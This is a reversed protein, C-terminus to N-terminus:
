AHEPAHHVCVHLRAYGGTHDMIWKAFSSQSRAVAVHGMGRDIAADIGARLEAQSFPEPPKKLYNAYYCLAVFLVAQGFFICWGLLYRADCLGDDAQLCFFSALEREPFKVWPRWKAQNQRYWVCAADQPDRFLDNLAALDEYDKKSLDFNQMFELADGGQMDKLGPYALKQLQQSLFDDGPAIKARDLSLISIGHQNANPFYSYVLAGKKEIYAAWLADTHAQAGLYAVRAPIKLKDVLAEVLGEDYGTKAIHLIQVECSADSCHEPVYECDTGSCPPVYDTVNFHEQAAPSKLAEKILVGTGQPLSACGGAERSCTEFLGSRGFLNIYPYANVKGQPAHTGNYFVAYQSSQVPNSAPWTEFALHLKKGGAIEEYMNATSFGSELSVDFGMNESLIIAALATTIRSTPFSDWQIRLKGTYTQPIKGTKSNDCTKLQVEVGDVARGHFSLALLGSVLLLPTKLRRMIM